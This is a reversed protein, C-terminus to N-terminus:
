QTTARRRRSAATARRREMKRLSAAARDDADAIMQDLLDFDSLACSFAVSQLVDEDYDAKKMRKAFNRRDSRKNTLWCHLVYAQTDDEFPRSQQETILSVAHAGALGLLGRKVRRYRAADLVLHTIDRLWFEEIADIPAMDLRLRNLLLEYEDVDEREPLAPRGVIEEVAWLLGPDLDPTTSSAGGM